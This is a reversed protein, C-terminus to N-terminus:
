PVALRAGKVTMGLVCSTLQNLDHSDRLEAAARAAMESRTWGIAAAGSASIM